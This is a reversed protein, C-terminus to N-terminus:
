TASHEFCVTDTALVPQGAKVSRAGDAPWIKWVTNYTSKNLLCVEQNRSFRAFALPSVPQSALFLPKNCIFENSQIRVEQGYRIMDDNAPAGQINAGGRTLHVISRACAGVAKTTTTM